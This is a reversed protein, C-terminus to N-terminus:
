FNEESQFMQRGPEGLPYHAIPTYLPAARGLESRFLTFGEVPAPGALLAARSELWRRLDAGAVGRALTVHPTFREARLVVGAARAAARVSNRLATLAPDPRVAAYVARARDGGFVGVGDLWLTFPAARAENLAGAIDEARRADVAGFFALTVHFNEPPVLRHRELGAQAAALRERTEDPLPIAAFLRLTM